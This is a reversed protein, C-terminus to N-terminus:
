QSNKRKLLQIAYWVAMTKAERSTKYEYGDALFLKADASIDWIRFKYWPYTDAKQVVIEINHKTEFWESVQEYTPAKCLIVKNLKVAKIFTEKGNTLTFKGDTFFEGFCPENFGLSAVEVAQQPLVMLHEM